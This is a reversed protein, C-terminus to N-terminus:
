AIRPFTASQLTAIFTNDQCAPAAQTLVPFLRPYSGNITNLSYSLQAQDGCLSFLSGNIRLPNASVSDGISMTWVGSLVKPYDYKRRVLEFVPEGSLSLLRLQDYVIEFGSIKKVTNRLNDLAALSCNQSLLTSTQFSLDLADEEADFLFQALFCHDYVFLKSTIAGSNDFSRAFQFTLAGQAGHQAWSGVLDYTAVLSVLTLLLSSQRM